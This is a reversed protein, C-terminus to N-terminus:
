LARINRSIAPRLLRVVRRQFGHGHCGEVAARSHFPDLCPFYHAVIGVIAALTKFLQWRNFGMVFMEGYDLDPSLSPLVRRNTPVMAIYTPINATPPYPCQFEPSWCGCNARLLCENKCPAHRSIIWLPCATALRRVRCAAAVDSSRAISTRCVDPKRPHTGESALWISSEACNVSTM